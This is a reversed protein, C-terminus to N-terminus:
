RSEYVKVAPLEVRTLFGGKGAGTDIALVSDGAWMDTPDEPTFTSLEPPLYDTSTHGVVIRKGRYDQFFEMTRVWLLVAKNAVLRPHLFKGNEIPLGAHVYIAHEDEYWYPLNAMWELVDDPFFAGTMLAASEARTPTDGEFYITKTFSRLTALCGNAPPMVFEPWGGMTVRLWADEHNGRLAVVRASTKQPLEKQVFEIVQASEPGRDIYDGVFVITDEGTLTPLKAMVRRLAAMDGHIDGFAFTRATM